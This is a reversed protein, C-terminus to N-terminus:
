VVPEGAEEAVEVTTKAELAKNMFGEFEEM